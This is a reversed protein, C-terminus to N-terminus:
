QATFTWCTEAPPEYNGCYTNISETISGAVVSCDGIYGWTGGSPVVIAGTSLSSSNPVIGSVRPSNVFILPITGSSGTVTYRRSTVGDGDFRIYRRNSLKNFEGKKGTSCVRTTGTTAIRTIVPFTQSFTRNGLVTEQDGWVNNGAFTIKLETGLQDIVGSLSPNQQKLLVGYAWPNSVWPGNVWESSFYPALIQAPSLKTTGSPDFLRWKLSSITREQFWGQTSEEGVQSYDWRGVRFNAGQPVIRETIPSRSIMLPIGTALGEHLALTFDQWQGVISHSGAPTTKRMLWRQSYHVMEHILILSNQEMLEFDQSGSLYIYPESIFTGTKQEVGNSDLARYGSASYAGSTPVIGEDLRYVGAEGGGKNSPSWLISLNPQNGRATSKRADSLFQQHTAVYDLIAYPGSERRSDVLKKTDRDYGLPIVITIAQKVRRTDPTFEASSNEYPRYRERVTQASTNVPNRNNLVAIEVGDITVTKSTLSPTYKRSPDLGTFTVKGDKDTYSSPVGAGSTTKLETFVRALPSKTPSEFNPRRTAPTTSEDLISTGVTEYQFTISLDFTTSVTVQATARVPEFVPNQCEISFTTTQTLASSAQKGTLSISEAIGSTGRCTKTNQSTWSLEVTNNPLVEADSPTLTATPANWATVTASSTSPPATSGSCSISFTTTQAVPVSKSGSTAVSGTWDSSGSATCATANSSSWQLTVTGGSRVDSASSSLSSTPPPPPSSGGGGCSSLLLGLLALSSLGRTKTQFMGQGEYTRSRGGEFYDM